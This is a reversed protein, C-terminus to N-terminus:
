SAAHTILEKRIFVTRSGFDDIWLFSFDSLWSALPDYGCFAHRLTSGDIMQMIFLNYIFCHGEVMETPM